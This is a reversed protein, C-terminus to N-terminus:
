DHLDELAKARLSAIARGLRGDVTGAKLGLAAGIRKLGWELGFRLNVLHMVDPELRSLQDQLWDLRESRDEDRRPPTPSEIEAAKERRRRRRETRLRDLACRQVVIRLWSALAHETDIPRLSRIVRMMSDQVVDLCFAEDRGTFQRAEAYMMEFRQRYFVAFAETDGSAIASTLKRIPESV